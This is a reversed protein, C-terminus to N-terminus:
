QEQEEQVLGLVGASQTGLGTQSGQRGHRQSASGCITMKPIDVDQETTQPRAVAVPSVGSLSLCGSSFRLERDHTGLNPAGYIATFASAAKAQDLKDSMLVM